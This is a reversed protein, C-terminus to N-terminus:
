VKRRSGTRATPAPEAYVAEEDAVGGSVTVAWARTEPDESALLSVLEMSSLRRGHLAGLRLAWELGNGYEETAAELRVQDLEVMDPKTTAAAAWYGAAQGPLSFDTMLFAMYHGVVEILPGCNFPVTEGAEDQVTSAATTLNTYPNMTNQPWSVWSSDRIADDLTAHVDFDTADWSYPATLYVTRGDRVGRKIVIAQDEGTLAVYWGRKLQYAKGIVPNM